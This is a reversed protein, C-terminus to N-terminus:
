YSIRSHRYYLEGLQTQRLTDSIIKQLDQIYEQLYPCPIPMRKELETAVELAAAPSAMSFLLHAFQMAIRPDPLDSQINEAYIRAAGSFIVALRSDEGQTYGPFMTRQGLAPGSLERYHLYFRRYVTTAFVTDTNLFDSGTWVKNLDPPRETVPIGLAFDSVFALNQM